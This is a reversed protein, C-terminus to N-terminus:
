KIKNKLQLLAEESLELIMDDNTNKTKGIFIIKDTTAGTTPHKAKSIKTGDALELKLEFSPSNKELKRVYLAKKEGAAKEGHFIVLDTDRIMAPHKQYRFGVVSPDDLLVRKNKLVEGSSTLELEFYGLYSMESNTDKADIQNHFLIKKSDHTWTPHKDYENSLKHVKGTAIHQLYIGKLKKSDLYFTLWEGNPSIRAHKLFTTNTKIGLDKPFITKINKEIENFISISSAYGVPDMDGKMVGNIVSRSLALPRWHLKSTVLNNNLDFSCKTFANLAGGKHVKQIEHMNEVKIFIESPLVLKSDRAKGIWCIRSGDDSIAVSEPAISKQDIISVSKSLKISEIEQALSNFVYFFSVALLLLSKIEKMMM